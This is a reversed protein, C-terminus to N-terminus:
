SGRLSMQPKQLTKIWIISCYYLHSHILSHYISIKTRYNMQDKTMILGNLGKKMKKMYIMLLNKSSMKNDFKVGSYTLYDKVVLIGNGTKM